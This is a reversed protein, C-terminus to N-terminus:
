VSASGSAISGTHEAPLAWIPVRGLRDEWTNLLASIHRLSYGVDQLHSGVDLHHIETEGVQGADPLMEGDRGVHQVSVRELVADREVPRRDAAEFLDVLRVHQQHEVRGGREDVRDELDRRQDDDAVDEVRDRALRVRAVWAEDGGAGLGVELLGADAVRGKHPGLRLEEDEAIHPVAAARILREIVDVAALAPPVAALVQARVEAALDRGLAAVEGGRGGVRQLIHAALDHHRDLAGADRDLDMVVFDGGRALALDAHAEVREVRM